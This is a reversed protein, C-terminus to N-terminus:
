ENYRTLFADKYSSSISVKTDGISVHNGEVYDIRDLNIIYSRHIRMYRSTELKEYESLRAKVTYVKEHTHVRVYDGYSEIISISRLPLKYLRKNEKITISDTTTTGSSQLQRKVKEISKFFRQFSIPKVLYDFADYEFADVAFEPYATTFIVLAESDISKLFDLGSLKPMDIDLFIVDVKEQELYTRAEIASKFEGKLILEDLEHIYNAIIKRALPEDDIIICNYSPM